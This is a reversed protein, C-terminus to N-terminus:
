QNNEMLQRMIFIANTFSSGPMFGMQMGDLEVVKWRREIIREIVKMGHEFLKISRYNAFLRVDGKQEFIPILDSKKRCELTNNGELM